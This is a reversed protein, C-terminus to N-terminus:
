DILMTKYINNNKFLDFTESSGTKVTQFNEFKVFHEM